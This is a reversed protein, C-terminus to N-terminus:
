NGDPRLCIEVYMPFIEPLFESELSIIKKNPKTLV